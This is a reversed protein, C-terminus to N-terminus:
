KFKNCIYRMKEAWCQPMDSEVCSQDRNRRELRKRHKLLRRAQAAKRRRARKEGRSTAAQTATQEADPATETAADPTVLSEAGDDANTESGATMGSEEEAAAKKSERRRMAAMRARLSRLMAKDIQPQLLTFVVREAVNIKCIVLGSDIYFNVCERVADERIEKCLSAAIEIQRCLYGYFKRSVRKDWKRGSKTIRAKTNKAEMVFIDIKHFM